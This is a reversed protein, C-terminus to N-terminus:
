KMTSIYTAVAKIEEDTMKKAIMNMINESNKSRKGNKFDTLTQILYQAHQSHLAPFGAPKNGEASSGHCAICASVARQLDGNRYLDGGTALRKALEAKKDTVQTEDDDENDLSAELEAANNASVKNSAYYGAIDAISAEDLSAVLPSMMPSIRSGDKFARLQKVLYTEHQGALKPFNPMQSNGNEGHCGTCSVSKAKGQAINVQNEAQVFSTACSLAFSTAVTLLKKTMM